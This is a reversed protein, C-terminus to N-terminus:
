PPCITAPTCNNPRNAVVQSADLLEVFAGGSVLDINYIGGGSEPDGPNADNDTVLSAGSLTLRSAHGVSTNFVGGGFNAARNRAVITDQLLVTGGNINFIGGGSEDTANDVVSSGNRLTVTGGVNFIGGGHIPSHNRAVTSASLAVHAQRTTTNGSQIGGRRNGTVSCKSLTLAGWNEIGVGHNDTIECGALTLTGENYLGAGRRTRTVTCSTLTLTGRNLIGGGVWDARGDRIQVGRLTSATVHGDV